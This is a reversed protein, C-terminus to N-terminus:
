FLTKKGEALTNKALHLARPKAERKECESALM